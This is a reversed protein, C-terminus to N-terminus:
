DSDKRKEVWKMKFGECSSTNMNKSMKHKSITVEKGKNMFKRVKEFKANPFEVDLFKCLDNDLMVGESTSPTGCDNVNANTPNTSRANCGKTEHTEVLSDELVRARQNVLDEKSNSEPNAIKMVLNKVERIRHKKRRTSLMSCSKCDTEKRNNIPEAITGEIANFNDDYKEGEGEDDETADDNAICSKVRIARLVNRCTSMTDEEKMTTKSIEVIMRRTDRADKMSKGAVICCMRKLDVYDDDLNLCLNVNTTRRKTLYFRDHKM